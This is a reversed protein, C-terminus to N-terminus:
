YIADGDMHKRLGSVQSHSMGKKERRESVTDSGHAFGIGKVKLSCRLHKSTEGNRSGM